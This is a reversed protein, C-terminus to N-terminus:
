KKWFLEEANWLSRPVIVSPRYNGLNAKAGSAFNRVLLPIMPLQEAFLKQATDFKQKRQTADITTDIEEALHDFAKEWEEKAQKQGIFWYRQGGGIKLGSLMTSPQLDSPATGHIAADYNGNKGIM